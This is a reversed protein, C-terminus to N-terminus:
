NTQLSGFSGLRSFAVRWLLYGGGGGGGGRGGGFFGGGGGCRVVEALFLDGSRGHIVKQM